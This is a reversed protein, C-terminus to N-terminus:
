KSFYVKEDKDKVYIRLSRTNLIYQDPIDAHYQSFMIKEKAHLMYPVPSSNDVLKKFPYYTNSRRQFIGVEELLIDKVGTNKIVVSVKPTQNTDNIAKWQVHMELHAQFHRYLAQALPIIVILSILVWAIIIAIWM